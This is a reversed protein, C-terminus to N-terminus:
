PYVHEFQWQDRPRHHLELYDAAIRGPDFRDDGARIFGRITVTTVHVGADRQEAHLAQTYARLAAKGVSLSTYDPSPNLAFGGGTFLVTGKGGRLMPIVTTAAVTAGILNAALSAAWEEPLVGTPTDPRAMAANYILVEPTGLEDVANILATVLQAPDAADAPQAQVLHGKDALDATLAKLRQEDRGILAVPHGDGAFTEALARGLGPGVGVILASGKTTM